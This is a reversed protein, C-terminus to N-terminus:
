TLHYKKHLDQLIESVDSKGKKKAPITKTTGSRSIEQYECTTIKWSIGGQRKVSDIREAIYPDAHIGPNKADRLREIFGEINEPHLLETEGSKVLSHFLHEIAQRFPLPKRGGKNEAANVPMSPATPAAPSAPEAHSPPPPVDALISDAVAKTLGKVEKKFPYGAAALFRVAHAKDVSLDLVFLLRAAAQLIFIAEKKKGRARPAKYGTDFDPLSKHWQANALGYALRVGEQDSLSFWYEAHEKARNDIKSLDYARHDSISGFKCSVCKALGICEDVNLNYAEALPGMEIWNDFM